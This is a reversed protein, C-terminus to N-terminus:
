AEEEWRLMRHQKGNGMGTEIGERGLYPKISLAHTLEWGEAALTRMRELHMAQAEERTILAAKLLVRCQASESFRYTAM